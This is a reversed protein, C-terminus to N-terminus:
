EIRQFGQPTPQFVRREILGNPHELIQDQTGLNPGFYTHHVYEGIEAQWPEITITVTLKAKIFYTRGDNVMANIRKAASTAFIMFVIQLHREHDKAEPDIIVQLSTDGTRKTAPEKAHMSKKLETLTGEWNRKCYRCKMFYDPPGGVYRTAIYAGKQFCHKCIYFVGYM